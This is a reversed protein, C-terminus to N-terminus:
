RTYDLGFVTRTRDIPCHQYDGSNLLREWDKVDKLKVCYMMGEPVGYAACWFLLKINYKELVKGFKEFAKIGEDVGGISEKGYGFVTVYGIIM